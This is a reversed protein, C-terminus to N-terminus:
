QTVALCTTGSQTDEGIPGDDFSGAFAQFDFCGDAALLGAAQALTFEVDPAEATGTFHAAGLHAPLAEGFAQYPRTAEGAFAAVQYSELGLAFGAVVDWRGNRDFDFAVCISGGPGLKPTDLGGGAALWLPSVGEVGDGDADSALSAFDLGVLLDGSETDLKFCVKELDWGSLQGEPAQAPMSVDRVADAIQVVGPVAFDVPVNGTFVLARSAPAVALAAPLILNWWKRM